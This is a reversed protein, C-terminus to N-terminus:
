RMRQLRQLDSNNYFFRVM